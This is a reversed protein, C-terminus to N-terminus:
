EDMKHLEELCEKALLNMKESVTVRDSFLLYSQYQGLRTLKVFLQDELSQHSVLFRSMQAINISKGRLVTNMSLRIGKQQLIQEIEACDKLFEQLNGRPGADSSLQNRYRNSVKEFKHPDVVSVIFYLIVSIDMYTFLLTEDVMLRHIESSILVNETGALLLVGSAAFVLLSDVTMMLIMRYYRQQLLEVVDSLVADEAARGQLRDMFFVYGTLTIGYLGAVIQAGVALVQLLTSESFTLFPHMCDYIIFGQVICFGVACAICFLVYPNTLQKRLWQKFKKWKM